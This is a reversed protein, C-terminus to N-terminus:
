VFAEAEPGPGPTGGWASCRSCAPAPFAATLARSPPLLRCRRAPFGDAGGAGTVDLRDDLPRAQVSFAAEEPLWSEREAEATEDVRPSADHDRRQPRRRIPTPAM